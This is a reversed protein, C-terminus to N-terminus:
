SLPAGIAPLVLQCPVPQRHAPDLANLIDRGVTPDFAVSLHEAFDLGCQDQVVINTANPAVLRGSTYPIVLEDYKTMITTYTVGKVAYVGDAYLHKYFPSGQLFEECSGCFRAVSTSVPGALAPFTAEFTHILNGVGALTTGHYLPTMAVYKDVKAAGGRFKLYYQPMVTGESHGVLDVKSAGTAALVRDVFTALEASSQEMPQVGGNYPNGPYRGYTLAFVCYGNNKLLPAMTGWNDGMTALLGHVLVVPRPHAATPRCGFDNTGPPSATPTFLAGKASSVNYVVPLTSAGAAPVSVVAAAVVGLLGGILGLHLPRPARSRTRM